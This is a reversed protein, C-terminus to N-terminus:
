VSCIMNQTTRMSLQSSKNIIRYLKDHRKCKIELGFVQLLDSIWVDEYPMRLLDFIRPFFDGETQSYTDWISHGKGDEMAAGEYQLLALWTLTQLWALMGNM